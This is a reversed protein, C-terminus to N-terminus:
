DGASKEGPQRPSGLDAFDRMFVKLGYVPTNRTFGAVLQKNYYDIFFDFPDRPDTDIVQMDADVMFLKGMRLTGERFYMYNPEGADPPALPAVAKGLDFVQILESGEVHVDTLRADLAPHPLIKAPDLVIDNKQLMAGRKEDVHVMTQLSLGLAKLLGLGDIKDCLTIKTPHVRIYGEPTASVEGIMTFPMDVGKHLIGEQKLTHTGLPTVVLDRFPAGKYGFTYRNMLESLSPGTMGIKGHFIRLVFSFKDDFNLPEGRQKSFMEARLDHIHLVVTSDIRFGVNKMAVQTSPVEKIVKPMEIQSFGIPPSPEPRPRGNDPIAATRVCCCGMFTLLSLAFLVAVAAVTTATARLRPTVRM